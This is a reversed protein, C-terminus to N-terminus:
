RSRGYGSFLRSLFPTRVKTIENAVLAICGEFEDAVVPESDLIERKIVDGYGYSQRNSHCFGRLMMSIASNNRGTRPLTSGGSIKFVRLRGTDHHMLPLDVVQRGGNLRRWDLQDLSDGLFQAITSPVSGHSSSTTPQTNSILQAEVRRLEFIPPKAKLKQGSMRAVLIGGITELFEINRHCDSCLECHAAVVSSSPELLTGAAFSLLCAPDPHHSIRIAGSIRDDPLRGESSKSNSVLSRCLKNLEIQTRVRSQQKDRSIMETTHGDLFHRKLIAYDNTSLQDLTKSAALQRLRATVTGCDATQPVPLSGASYQLHWVFSKSIKDIAINRAAVFVHAGAARHDSTAPDLAHWATIVAQQALQEALDDEVGRVCFYNKVRSAYSDHLKEFVSKDSRQTIRQQLSAM